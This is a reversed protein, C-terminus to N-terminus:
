YQVFCINRRNNKIQNLFHLRYIWIVVKIFLDDKYDVYETKNHTFVNEKCEPYSISEIDFLKESFTTKDVICSIRDIDDKQVESACVQADNIRTNWCDAEGYLKGSIIYHLLTYYIYLLSNKFNFGVRLFVARSQINTSLQFKLSCCQFSKFIWYHPM